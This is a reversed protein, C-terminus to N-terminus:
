QLNIEAIPDKNYNIERVEGGCWYLFSENNYIDPPLIYAAQVVIWGQKIYEVNIHGTRGPTNTNSTVLWDDATGFLWRKGNEDRTFLITKNYIKTKLEYEEEDSNIEKNASFSYDVLLVKLQEEQYGYESEYRKAMQELYERDKWEQPMESWDLVQSDEIKTIYSDYFVYDRNVVEEMLTFEIGEKDSAKPYGEEQYKKFDLNTWQRCKMAPIDRQEEYCTDASSRDAELRKPSIGLCIRQKSFSGFDGVVAYLDYLYGGGENDAEDYQIVYEYSLTEGPELKYTEYVDQLEDGGLGRVDKGYSLFCFEEFSGDEFRNEFELDAPAIDRTLSDSLNTVSIDLILYKVEELFFDDDYNWKLLQEPLVLTNRSKYYDDLEEFSDIIEAKSINWIFGENKVDEGLQYVNVNMEPPKVQDTTEDDGKDYSFCYFFVGTIMACGLIIGGVIGGVKRM